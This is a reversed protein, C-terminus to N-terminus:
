VELQEELDWRWVEPLLELTYVWLATGGEQGVAGDEEFQLGVGKGGLFGPHGKGDIVESPPGM